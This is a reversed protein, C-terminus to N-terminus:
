ITLIAELEELSYKKYAKQLLELKSEDSISDVKFLNNEFEERAETAVENLREDLYDNDYLLEAMEESDSDTMDEWYDDVSLKSRYGDDSLKRSLWDKEQESFKDYIKKFEKEIFKSM